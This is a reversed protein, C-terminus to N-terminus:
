GLAARILAATPGPREAVAHWTLRVCRWGAAALVLDRHRDREFADRSSHFEWGDGEIVLRRTPEAFDVELGEITPHFVFRGLRHDRLLKAISVELESDPREDAFPWDDLATRLAGIGPRGSIRHRDLAARAANAPVLGNIVMRGFTRAVEDAAVAGLDLLVRLPSVCPVGDRVSPRLDDLDTTRHLVVGPRRRPLTARPVLM